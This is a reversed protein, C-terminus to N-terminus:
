WINAECIHNPAYGSCARADLSLGTSKRAPLPELRSLSCAYFPLHAATNALFPVDTYIRKGCGHFKRCIIFRDNKIEAAVKM